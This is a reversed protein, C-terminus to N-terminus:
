TITGMVCIPTALPGNSGLTCASTEPRSPAAPTTAAAVAALMEPALALEAPRSCQWRWRGCAPHGSLVAPDPPRYRHWWVLTRSLSLFHNSIGEQKHRHLLRRHLRERWCIPVGGGVGVFAHLDQILICSHSCEFLSDAAVGVPLQSTVHRRPSGIGPLSKRNPDGYQKSLSGNGGCDSKEKATSKIFNETEISSAQRDASRRRGRTWDNFELM